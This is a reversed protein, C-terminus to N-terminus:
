LREPYVGQDVLRRIAALAAPVEERYTMGFWADESKLLHVDAYGAQVLAGVAVPLYFEATESQGYKVLFDAFLGRLQGFFVPAFGFCTMSVIEEGSLEGWGGWALPHRARGGTTPEIKLVEDIGTLRGAVDVACVGRNVAGHESLTQRLPYGVLAYVPRGPGTAGGAGRFHDALESYAAAGYFDDANIVAFPGRVMPETALVAQGTGWPKTRGPVAPHPPPLDGLEQFAYAVEMKAELRRGIAARFDKEIDRRIVFVVRGFGARRADYASYEILLEGGPGVPAVQKLGGFRSGMGAALVVLDYNVASPNRLRHGPALRNQLGGPQNISFPAQKTPRAKRGGPITQAPQRPHVEGWRSAV